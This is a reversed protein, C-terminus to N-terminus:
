ASIAVNLLQKRVLQLPPWAFFSVGPQQTPKEKELPHTIAHGVHGAVGSVIEGATRLAGAAREPAAKLSEGAEAVEHKLWYQLLLLLTLLLLLLVVRLM